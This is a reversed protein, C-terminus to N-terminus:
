GKYLLGPIPHWAIRPTYLSTDEKYPSEKTEVDLEHAELTVHVHKREHAEHAESQISDLVVILCEILYAWM